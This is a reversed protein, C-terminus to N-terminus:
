EGWRHFLSECTVSPSLLLRAMTSHAFRGARIIPRGTMPSRSGAAVEGHLTLWYVTPPAPHASLSEAMESWPASAVVLM